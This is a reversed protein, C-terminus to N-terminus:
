ALHGLAIVNAVIVIAYLSGVFITKARMTQLSLTVICAV